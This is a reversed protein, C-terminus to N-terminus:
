PPLPSPPAVICLYEVLVEATDRLSLEPFERRLYPGARLRSAGNQYWQDLSADAAQPASEPLRIQSLRVGNLLAMNFSHGTLRTSRDLTYGAAVKDGGRHGQGSWRPLRGSSNGWSISLAALIAALAEVTVGSEGRELREVYTRHLGERAPLPRRALFLVAFCGACERGPTADKHFRCPLAGVKYLVSASWRV